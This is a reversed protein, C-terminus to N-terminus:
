KEPLAKGVEAGFVDRAIQNVIYPACKPGVCFGHVIKASDVYLVFVPQTLTLASLKKKLSEAIAEDSGASLAVRVTAERESFSPVEDTLRTQMDFSMSLSAFDNNEIFYKHTRLETSLEESGLWWSKNVGPNSLIKWNYDDQWPVGSRSLRVYAIWALLLDVQKTLDQSLEPRLLASVLNPIFRAWNAHQHFANLSLSFASLFQSILSLIEPDINSVQKEVRELTLSLALVCKIQFEREEQSFIATLVSDSEAYQALNAIFYAVFTSALNSTV